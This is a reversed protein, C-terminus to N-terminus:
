ENGAEAFLQALQDLAARAEDASPYPLDIFNGGDFNIRLERARIIYFYLVRDTNLVLDGFKIFM